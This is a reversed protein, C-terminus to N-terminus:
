IFRFVVSESQLLYFAHQLYVVPVAICPRVSRCCVIQVIPRCQLNRELGVAARVNLLESIQKQTINNKVMEEELNKYMREDGKTNLNTNENQIASM